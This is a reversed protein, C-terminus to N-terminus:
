FPRDRLKPLNLSILDHLMTANHPDRYWDALSQKASQTLTLYSLQEPDALMKALNSLSKTMIALKSAQARGIGPIGLCLIAEFFNINRARKTLALLADTNLDASKNEIPAFLDSFKTITGSVVAEHIFSPGLGKMDLCDKGILYQLKQGFIGSCAKNTCYIDSGNRTLPAGCCPCKDPISVPSGTALVEAIKPIVDGQRVVKVKAGIGVGLKEVTAANALSVSTIRIGSVYAPSIKAVPTLKGSRGIQWVIDLIETSSGSAEFKWAIAWFPDHSNAGLYSRLQPDDVKIVVGDIEYTLLNRENGLTAVFEMAEKLNDCMKGKPLSFGYRTLIDIQQEYTYRKHPEIYKWAYFRLNRDAVVNPDRQRLSGSAYNRPNSFPPLGDKERKRNIITFDAKHVVIEGHVFVRGTAAIRQPINPVNAVNDTVVEGVHGNGRTIATVLRGEDYVLDCSLGDMKGDVYYRLPRKHAQAARLCRQNFKKLDDPTYAKALSMMTYVHAQKKFGTAPDTGIKQTPSDVAICDPHDIEFQTLQNYLVDFEQDPILSKNDKYYSQSCQNLYTVLARYQVETLPTTTDAPIPPAVVQATTQNSQNQDTNSM